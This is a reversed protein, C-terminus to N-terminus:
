TGSAIVSMSVEGARSTRAEAPVLLEVNPGRYNIRLEDEALLTDPDGGPDLAWLTVEVDREQRRSARTSTSLLPGMLQNAGEGVSLPLRASGSPFQAGDLTFSDIKLGSAVDVRVKQPPLNELALKVMVRRGRVLELRDVRTIFGISQSDEAHAVALYPVRDGFELVVDVDEEITRELAWITPSDLSSNRAHAFPQLLWGGQLQPLFVLANRGYNMEFVPGYLKRRGETFSRNEQVAKIMVLSSLALMGVATLGGVRRDWRWVSSFGRAGLIALPTIMVLYYYPGFRRPGGWETAGYSGWFFFYGLPITFIVLGLWRAPHGARFKRAGWFALGLLVLGGFGWTSVYLLHRVMGEFARGPTYETIGFGPVMEKLGFGVSDRDSLLNFPFRFPSGTAIDFYLLMAILPAAAGLAIIAINALFRKRNARLLWGAWALLPALFLVTEFPRAFTSVGVIFGGALLLMRSDRRIGAILMAAFGQLLALSCLYSLFATSQMLVMPSLSFFIAALLARKKSALLQLALLYATGSAAFAVVALGARHTGFIRSAAAVVAPFVPTYRTVFHDEVHVSMWPRFAEWEHPAPPFLSGQAYSDAMLLYVAEDNNDSFLPFISLSGAM